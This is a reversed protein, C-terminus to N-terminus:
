AVNGPLKQKISLKLPLKVGLLYSIPL